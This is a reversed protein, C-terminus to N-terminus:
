IHLSFMPATRRRQERMHLFCKKEHRPEIKVKESGSCEDFDRNANEIYMYSKNQEVTKGCEEVYRGSEEFHSGCETEPDKNKVMRSMTVIFLKITSRSVLM